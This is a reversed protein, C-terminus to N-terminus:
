ALKYFVPPPRTVLQFGIGTLTSSSAIFPYIYRKIENFFSISLDVSAAVDKEFVQYDALRFTTSQSYNATVTEASKTEIRLETESQQAPYFYPATVCSVFGLVMLIQPIFTSFIINDFLLMVPM